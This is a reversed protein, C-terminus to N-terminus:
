PGGGLSPAVAMWTIGAGVLRFSERCVRCYLLWDFLTLKLNMNCYPCYRHDPRFRGRLAPEHWGVFTYDRMMGAPSSRFGVGGEQGLRFVDLVDEHFSGKTVLAIRYLKGTVNFRWVQGVKFPTGMTTKTYVFGALFDVGRPPNPFFFIWYKRADPSPLNKHPVIESIHYKRHCM